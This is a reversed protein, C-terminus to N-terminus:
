MRVYGVLVKQDEVCKRSAKPLASAAGVTGIRARKECVSYVKQDQESVYAGLGFNSEPPM